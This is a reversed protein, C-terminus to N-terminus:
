SLRGNNGANGGGDPRQIPQCQDVVFHDGLWILKQAELSCRSGYDLSGKLLLSKLWVWLVNRQLIPPVQADINM